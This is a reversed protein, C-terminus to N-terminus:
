NGWIGDQLHEQEKIKEEQEKMTEELTPIDSTDEQYM